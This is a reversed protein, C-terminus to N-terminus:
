ACRMVKTMWDRLKRNSFQSKAHQKKWSAPQDSYYSIQEAFMRQRSLSWIDCRFIWARDSSCLPVSLYYKMGCKDKIRSEIGMASWYLSTLKDKGSKHTHVHWDQSIVCMCVCLCICAGWFEWSSSSSSSSSINGLRHSMHNEGSREGIATPWLTNAIFPHHHHHQHRHSGGIQSLVQGRSHSPSNGSVVGVVMVVVVVLMMM